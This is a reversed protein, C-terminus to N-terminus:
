ETSNWRRLGEVVVLFWLVSINIYQLLEVGATLQLSCVCSVFQFMYLTISHYIFKNYLNLDKIIMM